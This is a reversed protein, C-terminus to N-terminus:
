DLTYEAILYKEQDYIRVIPWNEDFEITYPSRVQCGQKRLNCRSYLLADQFFLFPPSQNGANYIGSRDLNM